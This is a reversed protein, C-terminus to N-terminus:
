RRPGAAFRQIRESTPPHSALYQLPNSREGGQSQQLAELVDSFHHTPIGARLLYELAFTDAETEHERSYHAQAYVAPLAASLTTIQTTDGFYAAVVAAVSSSELAMRLSHRYHVHGIEHALVGLIQRDDRALDVLGDTVVVTGDPLAFANAGAGQRFMLRLPLDPYKEAMVDFSRTLEARRKQTLSSPKFLSKDLVLLTGKGLDHALRAPVANAIQKAAFPVGWKMGALIGAILVVTALLAGRWRSEAGHLWTGFRGHGARQRLADVAANDSTELKGGDPMSIACVTDALRPAIRVAGLPQSLTAGSGTVHLVHTDDLTVRVDLPRSSHGDYYTASFEIM